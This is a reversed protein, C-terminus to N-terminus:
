LRLMIGFCFEKIQEKTTRHSQAFLTQYKEWEVVAAKKDQKSLERIWWPFRKRFRDELELTWEDHEQLNGIMHRFVELAQKLKEPATTRSLSNERIVYHYGKSESVIVKCIVSLVDIIWWKDEYVHIGVPFLIPQNTKELVAAYDIVRNWPYGGGMREDEFMIIQKVASANYLGVTGIETDEPARETEWHNKWGCVVMEGKSDKLQSILNEYFTPDLYDDSDVFALYHGISNLIGYNRASSPGSNPIHFARVRKDQQAYTDCLTGSKDSSGDDVLIIDLDSYTQKLISDVCRTLYKEANYVPVIVSLCNSEKRIIKQM